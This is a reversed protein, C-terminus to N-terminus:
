QISLSLDVTCIVQGFAEIKAGKSMGEGDTVDAFINEKM